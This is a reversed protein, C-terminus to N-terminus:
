RGPKLKDGFERELKAIKPGIVGSCYPQRANRAFYDQHYEEAPYFVTAPVIETVLPKSWLHANEIEAKVEEAIKRQVDSHYFVISRYETGVDAGQRNVTTPDHLHFFVTLLDHYSLQAPDFKIQISEAHGTIGSAVLEYTPNALTGGAYGSVM